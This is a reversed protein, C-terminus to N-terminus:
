SGTRRRIETKRGREGPLGDRRTAELSSPKPSGIDNRLRAGRHRPPTRIALRHVSHARDQPPRAAEDSNGRSDAQAELPVELVASRNHLSAKLHEHYSELDAVSVAEIRLPGPKTQRKALFDYFSLLDLRYSKITHRAKETGELYGLYSKLASNLAASSHSPGQAKPQAEARAESQSNPANKVMHGRLVM